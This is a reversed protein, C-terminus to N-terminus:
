LNRLAVFLDEQQLPYINDYCYGHRKWCAQWPVFYRETRGRFGRMNIDLGAVCLLNRLDDPGTATFTECVSLFITQLHVLTAALHPTKHTLIWPLLPLLMASFPNSRHVTESLNFFNFLEASLYEGIPKFVGAKPFKEEGIAHHFHSALSFTVLPGSVSLPVFQGDANPKAIKEILVRLNKGNTNEKECVLYEPLTVSFNGAKDCGLRINRQAFQYQKLYPLIFDSPTEDIEAGSKGPFHQGPLGSYAGWNQEYPIMTSLIVIRDRGSGREPSLSHPRFLNNNVSMESPPPLKGLKGIVPDNFGLSLCLKRLRPLFDYASILRGRIKCAPIHRTPEFSIKKM